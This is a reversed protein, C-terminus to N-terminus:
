KVLERIPIVYHSTTYAHWYGIGSSVNSPLNETSPFLPNRSLFIMDEFARWFEYQGDNLAALRIHVTDNVSFSSIYERDLNSRGKNIVIEGNSVMDRSFLGLMSSTTNRLRRNHQTFLKFYRATSHELDVHAKLTFLTDTFDVPEVWFSDILATADTMTTEADATLGDQCQVHLHYTKGAEGRMFSTTYYFPPYYSRDIHGVMVEERVGDSITVRAWRELYKELESIDMYEDSLTITRTLFVVPFDGKDIWGEVVLESPEHNGYDGNCSLCLLLLLFYPIKRM